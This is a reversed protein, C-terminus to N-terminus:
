FKMAISLAAGTAAKKNGIESITRRQTPALLSLYLTIKNRHKPTTAIAGFHHILFIKVSAASIM